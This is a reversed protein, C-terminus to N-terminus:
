AKTTWASCHACRQGTRTTTAPVMRDVMTSPFRVQAGLWTLLDGVEAAPLAGFFDHVLGRLVTGNDTLNDCSVVAVPGAVFRHRRCGAPWSVWRM